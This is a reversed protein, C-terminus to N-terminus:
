NEANALADCAEKFNQFNPLVELLGTTKLVNEVNPQLNFFVMKGKKLKATKAGTLLIRIGISAIYGVQSMDVLIKKESGAIVSFKRDIQLAGTIDLRGVLTVITFAVDFPETHIEM